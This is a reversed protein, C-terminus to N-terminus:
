HHCSICCYFSWLPIMVRRMAVDGCESDNLEMGEYVSPRHKREGQKQGEGQTAENGGGQGGQLANGQADKALGGGFGGGTM